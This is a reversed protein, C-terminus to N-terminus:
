DRLFHPFSVVYDLLQASTFRRQAIPRWGINREPNDPDSPDIMRMRVFRGALSGDECKRTYHIVRCNVIKNQFDGDSALMMRALDKPMWNELLFRYVWMTEGHCVDYVDLDSCQRHLMDFHLWVRIMVTQLSEGGDPTWFLAHTERRELKEGFDKVRQEHTMHDLEGWNRECLRADPRWELPLDMYGATEIARIYPSVFGRAREFPLGRRKTAQEQAFQRLWAGARKAQEVGRATLRRESTHVGMLNKENPHPNGRDALKKAINSESEGHRVVFLNVPMTMDQNRM